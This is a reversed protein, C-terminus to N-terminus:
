SAEQSPRPEPVNEHMYKRIKEATRVSCSGGQAWRDWERASANLAYQVVTAPKIGRRMAYEEIDKILQEMGLM